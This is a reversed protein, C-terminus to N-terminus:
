LRYLPFPNNNQESYLASESNALVETFLYLVLQQRVWDRCPFPTSLKFRIDENKTDIM